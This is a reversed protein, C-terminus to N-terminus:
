EMIQHQGGQMVFTVLTMKLNMSHNKHSTLGHILFTIMMRAAMKLIRDTIQTTTVMIMMGNAEKVRLAVM